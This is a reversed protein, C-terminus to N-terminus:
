KKLEKKRIQLAKKIVGVSIAVFVPLFCIFTVKKGRITGFNYTAAVFHAAANGKTGESNREAKQARLVSKEAIRKEKKAATAIGKERLWDVAKQMDGECAELAKKCDMMGAGTSERLNKVMEATIM